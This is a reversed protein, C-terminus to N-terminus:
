HESRTRMVADWMIGARDELLPVDRDLLYRRDALSRAAAGIKAVYEAKGSYRSSIAPRPDSGADSASAPFAFFSGIFAIL